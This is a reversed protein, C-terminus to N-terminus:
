LFETLLPFLSLSSLDNSMKESFYHTVKVAYQAAHLQKSFLVISEFM